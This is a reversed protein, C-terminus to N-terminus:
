LNPYGIYGRYNQQCDACKLDNEVRKNEGCYECMGNETRKDYEAYCVDHEQGDNKSLYLPKECYVCNTM